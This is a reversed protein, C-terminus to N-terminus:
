AAHEDVVGHQRRSEIWLDKLVTKAVARLARAHRHGDSIESGPLAPKGSPGCRKCERDHLAAAYKTKAADYAERYRGTSKMCSTAILWARKRADESWNAQSGRQRKPSEGQVVHLGCYAWLESVTRPREDRSHWYPDGTAGLLRALQKEGVGRSADSKLWPGWPSYRMYREVAKVAQKELEESGTAVADIPGLIDVAEETLGLGRCIGDSDTEDVPRVLIRRRNTLAIRMTELDDIQATLANLVGYDFESKIM